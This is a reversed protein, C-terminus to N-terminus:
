LAEEPAESEKGTFKGTMVPIFGADPAAHTPMLGGMVRFKESASAVAVAFLFLM